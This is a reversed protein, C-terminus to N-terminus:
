EDEIAMTIKTYPVGYTVQEVGSVTYTKGGTEIQDNEEIDSVPLMYAVLYHGKAEGTTDTQEETVSQVLARRAWPDPNTKTEFVRGGDQDVLGKVVITDKLVHKPLRM